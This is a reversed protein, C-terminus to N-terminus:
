VFIEDVRKIEGVSSFDYGALNGMREKFDISGLFELFKKGRVSELFERKCALYYSEKVLPIFNLDFEKALTATCIGADAKGSDVSVAILSASACINDYGNIEKPNIGSASLLQDLLVRTGTGEERNAFRVKKLAIDLLSYINLPNNKPTVIGQLRTCFSILLNAHQDLYPLFEKAADSEVSSATPFNFGTLDITGAKMAQLGKLSTSFEIGLECDSFASLRGVEDLAVDACGGVRVPNWETKFAKSFTQSIRTKLDLIEGLYEAQAEKNACLLKEGLQSLQGNKGRGRELLEVGLQGEWRNLENWLHRFSLNLEKAAGSLSGSKKVADLMDILPNRLPLAYNKNEECFTFGLQVEFKKM